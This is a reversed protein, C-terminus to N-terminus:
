SSARSWWNRLLSVACADIQLPVHARATNERVRARPLIGGEASAMARVRRPSHSEGIRGRSSRRRRRRECERRCRRVQAGERGMERVGRVFSAYSNGRLSPPNPNPNPRDRRFTEDRKLTESTRASASGRSSSAVSVEGRSSFSRKSEGFSHPESDLSASRSVKSFSSADNPSDGNTVLREMGPPTARRPPRPVHRPPKPNLSEPPSLTAGSDRRDGIIRDGSSYLSPSSGRSTTEQANEAKEADRPRSGDRAGFRTAGARIERRGSDRAIERNPTESSARTEARGAEVARSKLQNPVIPISSTGISRVDRASTHSPPRGYMRATGHATSAADRTFPMQTKKKEAEQRARAAAAKARAAAALGM